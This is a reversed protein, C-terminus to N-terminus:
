GMGGPMMGPFTGPAASEQAAAAAVALHPHSTSASMSALSAVGIGCGKMENMWIQAGSWADLAYLYGSVSVILRDGDPLLSVFGNGWPAQWKWLIEGTGRHVAAVIGNFATFLFDTLKLNM